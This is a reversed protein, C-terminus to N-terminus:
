NNRWGAVQCLVLVTTLCLRQRYTSKNDVRTERESVDNRVAVPTDHFLTNSPLHVHNCFSRLTKNHIYILQSTYNRFNNISSKRQKFLDLQSRWLVLQPSHRLLFYTSKVPTGSWYYKIPTQSSIQSEICVSILYYFVNWKSNLGDYKLMM